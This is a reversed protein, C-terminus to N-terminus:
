LNLRGQEWFRTQVPVSYRNSPIVALYAPNQPATGVFDGVIPCNQPEDGAIEM